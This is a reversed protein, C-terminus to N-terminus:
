VHFSAYSSFPTSLLPTTYWLTILQITRVKHASAPDSRFLQLTKEAQALMNFVQPLCTQKLHNFKDYFEVPHQHAPDQKIVPAPPHPVTAPNYANQLPFGGQPKIDQQMTPATPPVAINTPITYPAGSMVPAQQPNGGHMMMMNNLGPHVPPAMGHQAAAPKLGIHSPASAQPHSAHHQQQQQAYPHTGGQQAMVAHPQIPPQQGPAPVQGQIVPAGAPLKGPMPPPIGAQQQQQQQQIHQQQQIKDLKIAISSIYASESTANQFVSDEFRRALTAFKSDDQVLKQELGCTRLKNIIQAVMNQRKEDTFTARWDQVGEMQM